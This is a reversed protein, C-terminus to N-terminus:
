KCTPLQSASLTRRGRAKTISYGVAATSSPVSRPRGDIYMTVSNNGLTIEFHKAHYTPTSEGAQLELGPILKRGNDGILCVYIPATPKLSLALVQAAATTHKPKAATHTTKAPTSKAATTPTHTGSGGSTALLIILVIIVVV